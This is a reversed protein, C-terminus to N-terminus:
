SFENIIFFPKSKKLSETRKKGSFKLFDLIVNCSQFGLIPCEKWMMLKTLSKLFETMDIKNKRISIHLLNYEDPRKLLNCIFKMLVWFLKILVETKLDFQNKLFNSKLERLNRQIRSNDFKIDKNSESMAFSGLNSLSEEHKEKKCNELDFTFITHSSPKIIELFKEQYEWKSKMYQVGKSTQNLRFLYDYLKQTFIIVYEFFDTVKSSLSLNNLTICLLQHIITEIGKISQHSGNFVFLNSKVTERIFPSINCSNDNSLFSETETVDKSVSKSGHTRESIESYQEIDNINRGNYIHNHFKFTKFLQCELFNQLKVLFSTSSENANGKQFSLMAQHCDGLLIQFPHTDATSLKSSLLNEFCNM